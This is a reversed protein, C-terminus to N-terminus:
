RAMTGSSVVGPGMVDYELANRQRRQTADQMEAAAAATNVGPIVTVDDRLCVIRRRAGLKYANRDLERWVKWNTQVV